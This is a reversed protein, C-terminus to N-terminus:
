CTSLLTGIIEAPNWDPMVGFDFRFRHFHPPSSCRSAWNNHATALALDFDEDEFLSKMRQVAIPRVQFIYVNGCGDIAFEIDLDDYGLLGEIEDVADILNALRRDPIDTLDAGCNRRLFM